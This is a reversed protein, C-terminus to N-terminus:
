GISRDSVSQAIYSLTEANLDERFRTRFDDVTAGVNENLWSDLVREFRHHPTLDDFIFQCITDISAGFTQLRPRDITLEGVQDVRAVRVRRSPVERVVFASHTAIVAVSGTADLLSNLVIMFDSIYRPHLHTEPEDILLLSGRRISASAAAVFRLIAKEGSSLDRVGGMATLVKPSATPVMRGQLQLRRQEGRPELFPLYARGNVVRPEPLRNDEGEERTVEVYLSQRIDLKHLADDLFATRNLDSGEIRLCDLLALALDDDAGTSPDALRHFRYDLGYWPPIKSPYQDSMATAFVILRSFLPPKPFTAAQEDPSEDWVPRQQLGEIIAKFLRTKGVGNEGVLVMCRRSLPFDDGFDAFLRHPGPLGHLDAEVTFSRASDEVDAQPSPSLFRGGDRYATWASDERLVGQSFLTGETLLLTDRDIGELQAATADHLLRLTAFAELFGLEAVLDKYATVDSLASVFARDIDAFPISQGMSVLDHVVANTSSHGAFLLRMPLEHTTKSGKMVRLLLRYRLNFDNWGDNIPTVVVAREDAGLDIEARERALLVKITSEYPVRAM